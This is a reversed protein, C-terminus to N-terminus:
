KTRCTLTPSRGGTQILESREKKNKIKIENTTAEVHRPALQSSQRRPHITYSYQIPYRFLTNLSNTSNNKM